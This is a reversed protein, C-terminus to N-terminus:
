VHGDTCCLVSDIQLGKVHILFFTEVKLPPICRGSLIVHVSCISIVFKEASHYLPFPAM